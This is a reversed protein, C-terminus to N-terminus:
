VCVCDAMCVPLCVCMQAHELFNHSRSLPYSVKRGERDVQMERGDRERVCVCETRLANMWRGGEGRSSQRERKDREREEGEM